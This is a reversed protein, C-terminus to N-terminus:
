KLTELAKAFEARDCWVILGIKGTNLMIETPTIADTEITLKTGGRKIASANALCNNLMQLSLHDDGIASILETLTM